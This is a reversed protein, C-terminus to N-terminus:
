FQFDPLSKWGLLKLNNTFTVRSKAIDNFTHIMTVGLCVQAIILSTNAM